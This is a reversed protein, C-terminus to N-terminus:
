ERVVENPTDDTRQHPAQWGVPRRPPLRVVLRDGDADRRRADEVIAHVECGSQAAHRERVERIEVVVPDPEM